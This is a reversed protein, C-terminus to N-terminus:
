APGTQKQSFFSRAPRSTSYQRNSLRHSAFHLAPRPRLRLKQPHQTLPHSRFSRPPRHSPFLQRLGRVHGLSKQRLQLCPVPINRNNPQPPNRMGHIQSHLPQRLLSIPLHRLNRSRNRQQLFQLRFLPPTRLRHQRFFKAHLAFFLPASAHRQNSQAPCPLGRQSRQKRFPHPRWKNFQVPPNLLFTAHFQAGHKIQVPWRSKMPQLAFRQLAHQLRVFSKHQRRASANHILRLSKRSQSA